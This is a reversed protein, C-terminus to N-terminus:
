VEHHMKELSTRLTELQTAAASFDFQELLQVIRALADALASGAYEYQLERGLKVAAFSRGAMLGSLALLRPLLGAYDYEGPPV